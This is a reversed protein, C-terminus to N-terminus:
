YDKKNNVIVVSDWTTRGKISVMGHEDTHFKEHRFGEHFAFTVRVDADPVPAGGDDVVSLVIWTDAGKSIADIYGKDNRKPPFAFVNSIALLLVGVQMFFVKNIM